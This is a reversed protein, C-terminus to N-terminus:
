LSHIPPLNQHGDSFKTIFEAPEVWKGKNYNYGKITSEVQLIIGKSKLSDVITQFYEADIIALVKEHIIAAQIFTEFYVYDVKNTGLKFTLSPEDYGIGFRDSSTKFSM